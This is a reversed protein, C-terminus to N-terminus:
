SELVQRITRAIDRKTLPKMVFARIGKNKALEADVTHSFGTYLIVPMDRRLTFIEAALDIGTLDPMTQDTIVLDFCFPDFELMTLAERSRTKAVVRYGLEALIKSSVEVVAEDDDIFLVREHGEPVDKEPGQSSEPQVTQYKPLYVDFTSGKSPESTVTIAGGHSVVIGQAVTLGLGVGESADKTTFFPDFIKGAIAPAIGEGTDTISLKVYCGPGVPPRLALDSSPFTFDSLRIDISGGKSKMAHTANTCLNMVLQQMQTPDAFVRSSESEIHVRVGITSPLSPRLLKLSDEVATSLHLPMRHQQAKGTFLLIQRVLERGRIGASLVRDLYYHVPLEGPIKGKAMEAFGLVAALINNFDHAISGVLIRLAEVKQAQHVQEELRLGEGELRKRETIDTVSSLIWVKGDANRLAISEMTMFVMAGEPTTVALHLSHKRSEGLVEKLHSFFANAYGPALFFAFPMDTLKDRDKGLLSAARLNLRKMIGSKDFIFYGVPAFDYIESLEQRSHKIVELARWLEENEMELEVQRVALEKGLKLVDSSAETVLPNQKLFVEARPRLWVSRRVAREQEENPKGARMAYTLGSRGDAIMPHHKSVKARGLPIEGFGKRPV